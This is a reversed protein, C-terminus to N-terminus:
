ALLRAKRSPFWFRRCERRQLLGGALTTKADHSDAATRAEGSKELSEFAERESGRLQRRRGWARGHNAIEAGYDRNAIVSAGASAQAFFEVHERGAVNAIADDGEALILSQEGLEELMAEVFAGAEFAVTESIKNRAARVEM